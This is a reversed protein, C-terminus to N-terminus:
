RSGMLGQLRDTVAQWAHHRPKIVDFHGVRPLALLEVPDGAALAAHAYRISQEVPVLHDSRGHVLLQPVGLPLREIPSALAYRNPNEEPSAGMLELTSSRGIGPVAAAKLDCVAAQAVVATLRVVPRGGPESGPLGPRAGIWLALHGGSSHGVGVVRDLDAVGEPLASLADVAAAVDEFTGPWGGGREGVRRYEINWAAFGHEILDRALPAMLTRDYMSRWFGGHVLVVVPHPGSGEPLYLDCVQSGAEGYSITDAPKPRKM